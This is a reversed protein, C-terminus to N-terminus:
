LNIFSWTIMSRSMLISASLSCTASTIVVCSFANRFLWKRLVSCLTHMTVLESSRNNLGSAKAYVYLLLGWLNIDRPGLENISAM